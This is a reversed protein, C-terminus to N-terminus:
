SAPQMDMKGGTSAQTWSYVAPGPIGAVQGREQWYGWPCAELCIYLMTLVMYCYNYTRVNLSHISFQERQEKKWMVQNNNYSCV